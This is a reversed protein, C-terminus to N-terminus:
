KNIFIFWKKDFLNVTKNDDNNTDNNPAFYYSLNNDNNTSFYKNSLIDNMQIWGFNHLKRNNYYLRKLLYKLKQHNYQLLHKECHDGWFIIFINQGVKNGVKKGVKNGL